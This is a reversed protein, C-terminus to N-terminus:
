RQLIYLVWCLPVHGQTPLTVVHTVPRQLPLPGSSPVGPLSDKTSGKVGRPLALGPERVRHRDPTSGRSDWPGSARVDSSRKGGEPGPSSRLRCSTWGSGAVGRTNLSPWTPCCTTGQFCSISHPGPGPPCSARGAAWSWVDQKDEKYGDPRVHGRLREWAANM